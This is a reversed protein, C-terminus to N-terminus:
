ADNRWPLSEQTDNRILFTDTDNQQQVCLHAAVGSAIPCLDSRHCCRPKVVLEDSQQCRPEVDVCRPCPPPRERGEGSALWSGHWPHFGARLTARASLRPTSPPADERHLHQAHQIISVDGQVRQRRRQTRVHRTVLRNPQSPAQLHLHENKPFTTAATALAFPWAGQATSVASGRPTGAAIHGRQSM